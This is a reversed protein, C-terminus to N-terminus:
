KAQVKIEQNSKLKTGKPVNQKYITGVGDFTIRVYAMAEFEEAEKSSLVDMSNM